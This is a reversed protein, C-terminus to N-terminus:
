KEVKVLGGLLVILLSCACLVIAVASATLCLIDNPGFFRLNKVAETLVYVTPAIIFAAISLTAVIYGIVKGLLGEENRLIFLGLIYDGPLRLEHLGTKALIRYRSISLFDFVERQLRRLYGVCANATLLAAPFILFVRQFLLTDTLQLGGVSIGTSGGYIVLHYTVLSGVILAQYSLFQRNSAALSDRVETLFKDLQADNAEAALVDQIRNFLDM